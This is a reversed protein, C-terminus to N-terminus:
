IFAELSQLRLPFGTLEIAVISRGETLQFPSPSPPPTGGATQLSLLSVSDSGPKDDRSRDSKQKPRHASQNTFVNEM